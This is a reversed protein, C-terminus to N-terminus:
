ELTFWRPMDASVAPYEPIHEWFCVAVCTLLDDSAMKGRPSRACWDAYAYARAILSEDRPSAEYAKEFALRLWLWLIYPTEAESIVDALEPFMKSAIKRWRPMAMSCSGVEWM